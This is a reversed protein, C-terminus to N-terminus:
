NDWTEDEKKFIPTNYWYYMPMIRAGCPHHEFIFCNNYKPERGLDYDYARVRRLLRGVFIFENNWDKLFYYPGNEVLEDGTLM